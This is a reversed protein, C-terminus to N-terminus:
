NTYATTFNVKVDSMKRHHELIRTHHVFKVVPLEGSPLSDNTDLKAFVGFIMVLGSLTTLNSGGEEDIKHHHSSTICSQLQVSTNGYKYIMDM